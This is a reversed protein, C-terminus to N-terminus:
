MFNFLLKLKQILKPSTSLIILLCLAPTEQSFLQMFVSSCHATTLGVEKRILCSTPAVPLRPNSPLPSPPTILRVLLPNCLCTTEKPQGIAGEYILGFAPPLPPTHPRLWHTCSYVPPWIFKPSRLGNGLLQVPATELIKEEVRLLSAEVFYLVQM